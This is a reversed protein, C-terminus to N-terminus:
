RGSGDLEFTVRWASEGSRRWDDDVLVVTVQHMDPEGKAPDLIPLFDLDVSPRHTLYVFHRNLFAEDVCSRVSACSADALSRLSQGPHVPHADVFVAYELPGSVPLTSTWRVHVPLSVTGLQHPTVIHVRTDEAFQLGDGCATNLLATAIIVAAAALTPRVTV